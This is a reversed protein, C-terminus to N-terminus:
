RSFEYVQLSVKLFDLKRELGYVNERFNQKMKQELFTNVLELVLGCIGDVQKAEDTRVCEVALQTSHVTLSACHVLAWRFTPAGGNERLFKAYVIPKM